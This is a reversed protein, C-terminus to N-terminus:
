KRDAPNQRAIREVRQGSVAPILDAIRTGDPLMLDPAIELLPLLVFARGALRPHPLTLRPDALALDGFLLLDLDLSRPAHRYPRERGHSREIRQLQAFLGAADLDTDLAAVANIFDAGDAEVPASLHLSSRAALRTAPLAALEDFAKEVAARPDGLNAGLAVYARTM